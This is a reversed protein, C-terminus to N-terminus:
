SGPLQEALCRRVAHCARELRDGDVCLGIRVLTEGGPGFGICPLVAVGHSDLLALAFDRADIGLPAVDLLIFMGRGSDLLRAPSIDHLARLARKRREQIAARVIAPTDAAAEIAHTAAQMVFPPLGYHMCMSLKAFHRALAPPGAAWGIRWGSMRHSKSLSGVTILIENAGPLDHPLPVNESSVIDLYVTDLVLWVRHEVCLAVIEALTEPTPCRGVPNGPVNLVLVRTHPTIADAIARADLRHATEATTEVSVLRAGSATFTAPYTTYWPAILIVEDGAELLVQACSFLANQAGAFVTVREAGLRQRTLQEHYRAIAARLRPMGSVDAYHHEGAHLSEIAADVIAVPTRHDAEQGISLLTIDEGAAIRELARFHVEWPDPADGLADDAIRNTLSSFSMSSLRMSSFRM